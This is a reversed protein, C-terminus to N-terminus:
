KIDGKEYRVEEEGKWCRHRQREIKKDKKHAEDKFIKYETRDGEGDREDWRKSM